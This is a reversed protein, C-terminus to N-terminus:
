DRTEPHSPQRSEDLAPEACQHCSAGCSCSCCAPSSGAVRGFEYESVGLVEEVKQLASCLEERVFGLVVDQVKEDAPIVIGALARSTGYKVLALVEVQRKTM